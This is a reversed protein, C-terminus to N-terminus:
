GRPKLVKALSVEASGPQLPKQQSPDPSWGTLTVLEFTAAIRGAGDGAPFREAYLEAARVILGRSVPVRSREHLVNTAGMAKLERMLDLASRYTVTLTEADSVPLAFGARQLLGGADRVDVFPMIRPSAGGSVEAEAALMVQRLETLTAGGLVVGMFLGDPKLLRQIQALVGPLDNVYQLALVSVVLDFSGPAFPLAEEDAVVVTAGTGDRALLGAVADTEVVDNVGAAVLRRAMVGHYSGVSLARTFPRKIMALRDIVDDVAHTLLFDPLSRRDSRRMQRARREHLLDRDFIEKAPPM